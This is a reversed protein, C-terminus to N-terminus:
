GANEKIVSQRGQWYARFAFDAIGWYPKSMQAIEAWVRDFDARIPQVADWYCLDNDTSMDYM